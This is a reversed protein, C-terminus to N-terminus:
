WHRVPESLSREISWGRQIRTLLTVPNMGIDIAWDTLCKTKGNFTLIRNRRTNRMQVKQTVWQCNDPSYGHNNNVREITDEPYPREGMDVIFADFSYWEKCVDIGRGGYNKYGKDNPNRCRNILASWVGYEPSHCMGHTTNRQTVVEKQLCGCSKTNGNNLSAILTVVESGCDCICLWKTMRAKTMEVPAIATLRGFTRGSIDSARKGLQITRYTM